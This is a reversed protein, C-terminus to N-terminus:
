ALEFACDELGYAKALTDFRRLGVGFARLTTIERGEVATAGAQLANLLAETEKEKGKPAGLKQLEAAEDEIAPAFASHSIEELLDAESKKEPNELAKLMRRAVKGCIQKAKKIYAPKTISSATVTINTTAAPANSNDASSGGGCGLALYSISLVATLVVIMRTWSM